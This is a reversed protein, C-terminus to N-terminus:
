AEFQFFDQVRGTSRRHTARLRLALGIQLCFISGLVISRPNLDRDGEGTHRLRPYRQGYLDEFESSNGTCLFGNNACETLTGELVASALAM